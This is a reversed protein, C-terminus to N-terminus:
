CQGASFWQVSQLRCHRLSTCINDAAALQEVARLFTIRLPPQLVDSPLLFLLLAVCPVMIAVTLAILKKDSIKSTHKISRLAVFGYLPSFIGMGFAVSLMPMGSCPFILFQCLQLFATALITLLLPYIKLLVNWHNTNPRRVSSSLPLGCRGLALSPALIQGSSRITLRCWTGVGM